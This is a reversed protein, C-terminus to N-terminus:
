IAELIGRLGKCKIRLGNNIQYLSIRRQSTSIPPASTMPQQIVNYNVKAVNFDKGVDM